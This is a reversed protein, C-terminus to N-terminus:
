PLPINKFKFEFEREVTIWEMLVLKRPKGLTKGDPPLFSMKMTVKENTVNQENVGNPQFKLGTEDHLELRQYVNGWWGYDSETKKRSKLMVKVIYGGNAEGIEAVELDIGNGEARKKGPELIKDIEMEPRTENLLLLNVKGTIEKISTARRDGRALNVSFSQNLSRYMGGNYFRTEPLSQGELKNPALSGGLDDVADVISTTGVSVVPSKPECHLMVNLNLYENQQQFNARIPINGLQVNRSANINSAVFRFPGATDVYPNVQHGLYANLTLREDNHFITTM